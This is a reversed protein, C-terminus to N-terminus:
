LSTNRYNIAHRAMEGIMASWDPPSYSTAANFRTALLSRDCVFNDDPEIHVALGFKDRVLLLLEYKNIPASAVQWLGSLERHQTLIREVIRAMELTTFGTYIARRYGRISGGKQALFWDILSYTTGLERGIISTRITLANPVASVEGLYKTRGYLDEADSIDAETYGGRKGSFM